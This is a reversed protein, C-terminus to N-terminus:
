SLTLLWSEIARATEELSANTTDLELDGHQRMNAYFEDYWPQHGKWHRETGRDFLRGRRVEPDTHLLAFKINDKGIDKAIPLEYTTTPFLALGFVVTNKGTDANERALKLWSETQKTRWDHHLKEDKPVPLDGKDFDYFKWGRIPNQIFFNALTSKGTGSLGSVFVVKM